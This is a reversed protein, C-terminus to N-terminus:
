FTFYIFNRSFEMFMISVAFLVGHTVPNGFFIARRDSFLVSDERVSFCWLAVVAVYGWAFPGFIVDGTPAAFSFLQEMVRLYGSLSNNFLPWGLSVLSFTLGAQLLRPFKDWTRSSFHYLSVLIAHYAGWVAFNWGAGHWIGCAVFVIAINRIYSRNGGLRIYVYDKLWFSLTVHWRKWFERPTLSKYPEIFNRPLRIGIMLGLGIAMLSYGWFDYFIVFSYALVSFLADLSGGAGGVTYQDRLGSLVDAFIVKYFLGFAFYQLARSFDPVVKEVSIRHLQDRLERYRVIPGAILQAFFSVFASMRWFNQEAKVVGDRVDVLYAVVQFTYFSIGAPLSVSLIYGLAGRSHGAPDVTDVVFGLYKFLFLIGLPVSVAAWLVWRARTRAMLFAAIYTWLITIVFLVLAANGAAGYFIVSALTVLAVRFKVPFVYFATLFLPLFIFIFYLSNFNM